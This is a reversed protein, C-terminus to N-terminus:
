FGKLNRSSNVKVLLFFNKIESFFFSKEYELFHRVSELKNLSNMDEMEDKNTVCIMGNESWEKEKLSM